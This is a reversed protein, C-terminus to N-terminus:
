SRWTDHLVPLSTANFTLGHTHGSLALSTELEVIPIGNANRVILQQAQEVLTQRKGADVAAAQDTLLSDLPSPTLRYANVLPTAFLTRLCDPDARSLDGGWLADFDGSQVLQPFQAVQLQKLQLDVGIAKLQQQVLELAPRTNEYNNFWVATLSLRGGDKQRIGDSGAKWGATDLLSKAKGADLALDASLDVYGPTTKSLIGSAAVTGSPFVAQVVQSRDIAVQIARRVLPDRLNPRSNNLGMGFVAGPHSRTLLQVGSGKLATEDARGLGSVVDVQGSRVSGARVGSEPIVTFVISDLYAEGPKAWLPSGWGYGARKTLTISQNPVYKSVVFPGSGTVGDSCRQQPTKAASSESVLGLAATSTAQLFQVNPQAFTIRATLPDVVETGVYGSLYGKALIALAGLKPIADFNDKVVNADVPSGDSFTVGSRLHFTFATADPSVEWSQALWPVPKGTTPDQDTLSDVSERLSYLTDSSGVQQPDICGADSAVAFTLTGGPKPPGANGTGVQEGSGSGCAGAFLTAAVGLALACRASKWRIASSVPTEKDEALIARTGRPCDLGHGNHSIQIRQGSVSRHCTQITLDVIRILM